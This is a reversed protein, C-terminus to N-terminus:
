NVTLTLTITQAPWNGSTATVTLMSTGTPTVVPQPNSPPPPQGSTPAPSFAATSSGGGCGSVSVTMFMLPAACVWLLALRRLTFQTKSITYSLLFLLLVLAVLLAARVTQLGPFEPLRWHSIEPATLGTGTTAVAVTFLVPSSNAVSFSATSITCTAATPAGTCALNISGTFGPGPTIQLSYQATQGANITASTSGGLASLQFAAVSIGTLSATQTPTPANDTITITAYRQGQVQPSFTANISCSAQVALTTGSCNNTEAFDGPNTGGLVVSSITLSATGSNTVTVSQSASKVGQAITGFNVSAPTLSSVGAVGNGSLSVSQPSDAADDSISITAIREGIAKPGFTVTISCSAQVALPAATCNNTEAFDGPNAGKPLISSITLSATGSNTLTVSEPTSQSGQAVDGFTLSGPSLTVAGQAQIGTGSLAATQPSGPANDAVQLSAQESGAVSPIFEISIPCNTNPALSATCTNTQSFDAANTGTISIGSIALPQGGTNSLSIIKTAAPQGVTMQGLDQSAPFLQAVPGSVQQTPPATVALGAVGVATGPSISFPSGSIEALNGTTLDIQFVHIGNQDLTYIFSGAPDAASTGRGLTANTLPGLVQTLQGTTPDISYVFLGPTEQVYLYKDSSDIAMATPVANAGLNLSVGTAGTGDVPSVIGGEILGSSQGSGEYFFKGTPDMAICRGQSNGGAATGNSFLAGSTSDISYVETAAGSYGAAANPGLGVYLRLGKPDALMQFPTGTIDFSLQATLVIQLNAADIAFPTIASNPAVNGNAYGVYLYKGSSETAISVPNSPANNPNITPGTSFPSNPVEALAGTTQDIQFMSITDSQPNLVFLFKGQGDVAVLGGEFRESFPSGTVATLSGTTSNKNYAPLVSNTTSSSESAYVYQQATQAAISAPFSLLIIVLSLRTFLPIRQRGLHALPGTLAL